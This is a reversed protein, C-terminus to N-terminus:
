GPVLDLEDHVVLIQASALKHFAMVAQVSRGSDNMWTSPKVLLVRAGDITVEGAHGHFRVEKRLAGRHEGALADVFWFGANHRTREYDPGPNGLGVIARIVQEGM